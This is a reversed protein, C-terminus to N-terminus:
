NYEKGGLFNRGYNEAAIPAKWCLECKDEVSPFGQSLSCVHMYIIRQLYGRMFTCTPGKRLLSSSEILERQQGLNKKLVEEEEFGKGRRWCSM